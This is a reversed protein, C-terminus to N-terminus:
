DATVGSIAGRVFVPQGSLPLRLRQGPALNYTTAAGYESTVTVPGTASILVAAPAVSWMIRTTDAGVGFQYSYSPTPLQDAGNYSLGALQRAMVAQAVFAPKPTLATIGTKSTRILGFNDNTLGANAGDDILDYWYFETVGHAFAMAEARVLYDAQASESVGKPGSNTPWGTETVWIPISKGDNHSLIEAQLSQLQSFSPEPPNPYGYPHVSVADMYVLGGLDFLRNLWDLPLGATAGGVVTVDPHIAKVTQYTQRLLPL